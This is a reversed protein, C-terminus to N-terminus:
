HLYVCLHSNFFIASVCISERTMSIPAFDLLAALSMSITVAANVRNFLTPENVFATFLKVFNPVASSFIDTDLAPICASYLTEEAISFKDVVLLPFEIELTTFESFFIGSTTLWNSSAVIFLNVVATFLTEVAIVGSVLM